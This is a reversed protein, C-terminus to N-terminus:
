TPNPEDKEVYNQVLVTFGFLVAVIITPIVTFVIEVPLNYQTQRPPVDDDGGRKRHFIVAWFM